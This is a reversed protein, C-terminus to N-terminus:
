SEGERTSDAAAGVAAHLEVVAILRDLRAAIVSPDAVQLHQGEPTM